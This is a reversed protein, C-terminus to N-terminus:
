KFISTLRSIWTRKIKDPKSNQKSLERAHNKITQHSNSHYEQLEMELRFLEESNM